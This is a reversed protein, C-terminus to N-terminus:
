ARQTAEWKAFRPAHVYPTRDVGNAKFCQVGKRAKCQPCAYAAAAGMDGPEGARRLPVTAAMEAFVEPNGELAM